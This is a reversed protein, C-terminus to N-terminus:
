PHDIDYSVILAYCKYTELVEKSVAKQDKKLRKTSIQQLWTASVTIKQIYICMHFHSSIIQFHIFCKQIQIVLITM